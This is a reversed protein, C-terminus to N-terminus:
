QAAVGERVIECADRVGRVYALMEYNSNHLLKREAAERLIDLRALIKELKSIDKMESM